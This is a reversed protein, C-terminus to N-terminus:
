SLSVDHGLSGVNDAQTLGIRNIIGQGINESGAGALEQSLGDLDLGLSIEGAQALQLQRIATASWASVAM